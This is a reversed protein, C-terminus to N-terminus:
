TAEFRSEISLISENRIKKRKFGELYFETFTSGEHPFDVCKLVQTKDDRTTITCHLIM